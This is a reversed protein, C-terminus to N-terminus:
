EIILPKKGTLVPQLQHAREYLLSLLRHETSTAVPKDIGVATLLVEAPGAVFGFTDTYGRIERPGSQLVGGPSEREVSALRLGYAPIGPAPSPLTTITAQEQRLPSRVRQAFSRALCRSRLARAAAQFDQRAFTASRTVYVASSVATIHPPLRLTIGHELSSGSQHVTSRFRPSHIAVFEGTRGSRASCREVREGWPPESRERNTVPRGTMGQADGSRLNVARAFAVAEAKTAPGQQADGCGTLSAAAALAWALTGRGRRVRTGDSM